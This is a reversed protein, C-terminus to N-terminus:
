LGTVFQCFIFSMKSNLCHDIENTSIHNEIPSILYAKGASLVPLLRFGIVGCPM